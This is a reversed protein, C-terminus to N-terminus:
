LEVRLVDLVTAMPTFVTAEESGAFLLGVARKSESCRLMPTLYKSKVDATETQGRDPEGHFNRGLEEGVGALRYGYVVARYIRAGREEKGEVEAFLEELSPKTVLRERRPIEQAPQRERLLPVLRKVFYGGGLVM